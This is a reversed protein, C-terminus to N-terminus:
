RREEEAAQVRNRGLEKAQYLAHDARRILEDLNVAGNWPAVGLSVTVYIRHGDHESHMAEIKKRVREAAELAFEQSTDPLLILFEEGGFRGFLDMPRVAEQAAQVVRHLVKDGAEHGFRDNIQKFHDVDFMILSATRGAGTLRELERQAIQYFHRRNAIGTLYDTSALESLRANAAELAETRERVRQELEDSQAKIEHLLIALGVSLVAVVALYEQTLWVAFQPAVGTYPHVGRVMFGIAMVAIIVVTLAAGRVGFRVAAWASFPLLVIPTLHFSLSGPGDPPLSNLGVWGLLLWVICIELLKLWDPRSVGNDLWRWLVVILPTLLLLGLADGFWWLRWLSLYSTDSRGLLVYVAAGFLAALSSALLPGYFLFYAGRKLRDFNFEGGSAKRILWAAFATEFLNITGFAVAAWLPFVPADAVCEAILAAVGMLPWQRYPFLLFASLLVANPPWLIAIGEPTVTQAVGLWAGAYYAFGVLLVRIMLAVSHNAM